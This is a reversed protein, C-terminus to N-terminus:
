NQNANCSKFCYMMNVRSVDIVKKVKWKIKLNKMKKRLKIRIFSEFM